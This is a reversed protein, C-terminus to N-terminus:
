FTPTQQVKARFFIPALSPVPMGSYSISVSIPKCQSAASILCQFINCITNTSLPSSTVSNATTPSTSASQSEGVQKIEENKTQTIENKAKEQWLYIGGGSILAAILAVALVVLYRKTMQNLYLLNSLTVAGRAPFRVDSMKM